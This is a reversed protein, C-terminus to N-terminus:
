RISKPDFAKAQKTVPERDFKNIEEIFKNTYLKELPADAERSIVNHDKAFQVVNRWDEAIFMGHKGGTKPSTWIQMRSENVVLANKLAEDESMNAPKSAPFHKWTIRVAAERNVQNFEYGKALARGFGIVVQPRKELTELTAGMSIDPLNRISDDVPLQRLKFGAVDLKALMADWYVVADVQKSRLAAAGQAGVGITLYNTGDKGIDVGAKSLYAKGYAVGSSGMSAVGIKKGKLDGLRTVPSDPVVSISWINRYYVNYFVLVRMGIEPQIGAVLNAPPITGIDGNGAAIQILVQNGGAVPVLDVDLGEAQYYGLEKAIMYPAYAEDVNTVPLLVKIKQLQQAAASGTFAVSLIAIVAARRWFTKM